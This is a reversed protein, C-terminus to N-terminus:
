PARRPRLLPNWRSRVPPISSLRRCFSNKYLSVGGIVTVSFVITEAFTLTRASVTCDRGDVDIKLCAVAPALFEVVFHYMVLSSSLAFCTLQNVLDCSSHVSFVIPGFFYSSPISGCINQM